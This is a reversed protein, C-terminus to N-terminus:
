VLCDPDTEGTFICVSRVPHPARSGRQPLAQTGAYDTLVPRPPASCTHKVRVKYKERGSSSSKRDRLRRTMIPDTGKCGSLDMYSIM